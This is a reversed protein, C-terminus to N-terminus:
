CDDLPAVSEDEDSGTTNSLIKIEDIKIEDIKV